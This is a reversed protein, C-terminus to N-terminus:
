TEIGLGRLLLRQVDPSAERFAGLLEAERADRLGAPKVDYGMANILTLMDIDLLRSITHAQDPTLVDKRRGSEWHAYNARTTGLFRALDDQTLQKALRRQRLLGGFFSKTVIAM